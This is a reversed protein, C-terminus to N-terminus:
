RKLRKEDSREKVASDTNVDSDAMSSSSYFLGKRGSSVKKKKRGVEEEM